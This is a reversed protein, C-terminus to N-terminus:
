YGSALRHKVKRKLSRMNRKLSRMRRNRSILLELPSYQYSFKRYVMFYTLWRQVPSEIATAMNYNKKSLFRAGKYRVQEKKEPVLDCMIDLLMLSDECWDSVKAASTRATGHKRFSAKVAQVDVRGFRAALQVEAIVDQFLHHKSQFGGIEKLRKTNFLTSCLYLSTKSAFWGLLFDAMSLGGVLNSKEKLVIGDADITRTGTRLIGFHTEYNAAKLCTEVFDHDVMDDDHLLLFYDGRAQELCFNFNDNPKINQAQRLYRIHSDAFGKVVAETNDTSCNDSVVIELNPYTQSAASTLAHKLYSDARNYTPIAITVLPHVDSIM